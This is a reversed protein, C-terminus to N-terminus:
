WCGVQFALSRPSKPPAAVVECVLLAVGFAVGLDTMHMSIARGGARCAACCSGLESHTAPAALKCCVWPVARLFM